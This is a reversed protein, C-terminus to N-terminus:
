IRANISLIDYFLEEQWMAFYSVCQLDIRESLRRAVPM